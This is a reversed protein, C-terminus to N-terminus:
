DSETETDAATDSSSAEETDGSSQTDATANTSADTDTDTQEDKKEAEIFWCAEELYEGTEDVGPDLKECALDEQIAVACEEVDRDNWGEGQIERTRCHEKIYAICTKVDFDDFRTRFVENDRCSHRKECRATEIEICADYDKLPDMCACVVLGIFLVIWKNM